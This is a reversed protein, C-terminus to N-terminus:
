TGPLETQTSKGLLDPQALSLRGGKSVHLVTAGAAEETAKGTMTPRKFTVVHGLRVQQTGKIHEFNLKIEVSGKKERDVVAAAVQSLAISLMQEFQGAELDSILEPVDTTARSDKQHM